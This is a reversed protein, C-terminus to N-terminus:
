SNLKHGQSPNGSSKTTPKSQLQKAWAATNAEQSPARIVTIKEAIDVFQQQFPKGFARELVIEAASLSIRPDDGNMHKIIVSFAEEGKAEFMEKLRPDLKPRGNPNGSQGPQFAM